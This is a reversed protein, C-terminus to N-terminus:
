AVFVLQDYYNLDLCEKGQIIVDENNLNSILLNIQLIWM